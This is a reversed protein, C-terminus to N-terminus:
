DFIQPGQSHHYGAQEFNSAKTKEIIIKLKLTSFLFDSIGQNV